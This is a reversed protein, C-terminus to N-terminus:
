RGCGHAAAVPPLHGGYQVVCLTGVACSPSNSQARTLGPQSGLPGEVWAEWGGHTGIDANPACPPPCAPGLKGLDESSAPVELPCELGLAQPPPPRDSDM